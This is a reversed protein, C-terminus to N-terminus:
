IILEGEEVGAPPHCVQGTLLSGPTWKKFIIMGEKTSAFSSKWRWNEGEHLKEFTTQSNPSEARLM